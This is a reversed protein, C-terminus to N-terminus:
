PPRGPRHDPRQRDQSPFVARYAQNVPLVRTYPGYWVGASNFNLLGRLATGNLADPDSVVTGSNATMSQAEGEWNWNNSFSIGALGSGGSDSANLDLIINKTTTSAPTTVAGIPNKRDLNFTVGAGTASNGSADHIVPTVTINIQNALSSVDWVYERAAGNLRAITQSHPSGNLLYQAILDISSVGSNDDTANVFFRVQNSTVGWDSWPPSYLVSRLLRIPVAAPPCNFRSM